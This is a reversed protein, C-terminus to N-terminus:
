AIASAARRIRARVGFALLWSAFALEGVLLPRLLPGIAHLSQASALGAVGM